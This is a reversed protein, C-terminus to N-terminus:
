FIYLRSQPDTLTRLEETSKSVTIKIFYSKRSLEDSQSQTLHGTYEKNTGSLEVTQLKTSDIDDHITLQKEWDDIDSVDTNIKILMKWNDGKALYKTIKTYEQKSM